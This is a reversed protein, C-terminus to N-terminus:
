KEQISRLYTLIADIEDPEFTFEPMAPHATVIGEALAEELDSIPYRRGLTRFPPAPSFPSAGEKGVAHCRACNAEVIARGREVADAALSPQSCVALVVAAACSRRVRSGKM